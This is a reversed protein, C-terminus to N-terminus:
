FKASLNLAEGLILMNEDSEYRGKWSLKSIKERKM